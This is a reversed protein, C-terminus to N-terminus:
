GQNGRDERVSRSMAEVVRVPAPNHNRRDAELRAKAGAFIADLDLPVVSRKCSRREQWQEKNDLAEQILELATDLLLEPATITDIAGDSLAESASYQRGGSIWEIAKAPEMIRPARVTGGFGPCIGLGVEPFGFAASPAAVRYDTALCFELGGGLAIGAVASVTPFPLDELANFIANCDACWRLLQDEPLKFVSSFETIDAGVIFSRKASTCVLGQLGNDALGSAAAAELAERLENLTAQNFKNVSAGQLDFCLHGIGSEMRTLSIAKGRYMEGLYM